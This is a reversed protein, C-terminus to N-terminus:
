PQSGPLQFVHRYAIVQAAYVVPIAMFLGVCLALMGLLAVLTSWIGLVILGGINSFVAGFSLKVADGIGMGHEVILPIAFMLAYSWVISFLAYGILFVAFAATFGTAVSDGDAASQFFNADPVESDGFLEAISSAYQVGQYVIGPIAQIIGVFMLPLFKEFGKFLMGFDVPEDGMDRLVLYAFGGMVPGLLFISVIPIFSVLIMTVIGVGVYLWFRRKVLEWANAICDSPEIASSVYNIHTM